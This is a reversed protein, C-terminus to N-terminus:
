GTSGWGSDGRETEALETVEVVEADAVPLLVVQAIRDGPHFTTAERGSNHLVVCVEGGFSQDIVGGRVDIGRAALGSRGFVQGYWGPETVRMALGLPVKVTAGAWLQVITSTALDFGADGEHARRPLIADPRLKKVGLQLM